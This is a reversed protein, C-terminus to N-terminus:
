VCQAEKLWSEVREVITLKDGEMALEVLGIVDPITAPNPCRWSEIDEIVAEVIFDRYALTLEDEERVKLIRAELEKICEVLEGKEFERYDIENTM